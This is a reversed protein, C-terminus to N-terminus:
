SIHGWKRLDAVTDAISTELPRFEIGLERRIKSNDFHPVKGLNSHMYTRVGKPQFYAALRVVFDPLAVTPLKGKGHKALISVLRRMGITENACVYRGHATPVEVARVHAIGVDRVDVMSWALNLIGPYVGNYLDSFIGTSTNRASVLSPGIVLPPHIAVLDWTPKREELFRWAAREAVAKSYYYPNRELSSETNWDAESYTRTPDPADTVAAMSSTIVVRRVSTSRLCAELVSTTGQLAPDVLEKQPDKVDVIYPSATHVVAVADRVAADFAGPVMLDAEAIEIGQLADPVKARSRATGRVSHGAAVFAQAVASGVFGTVGTVVIPGV